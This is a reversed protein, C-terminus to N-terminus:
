NGILLDLGNSSTRGFGNITPDAPFAQMYIHVGLLATNAVIPLSATYNGSADASGDRVIDPRVRLSCGPAQFVALNFPLFNGNWSTNSQGQVLWVNGNAPMNSGTITCGIGIRPDTATIVPVGNTGACGVGFTTVQPEDIDTTWMGRGHTGVLLTNSGHLFSLDYCAVDAPGDNSGSWTQCNDSTGFVGVETAVYYRGNLTPHQAIGRLPSSPLATAGVGTVDTFTLGANTTRFLNNTVFGGCAVLVTSSNNRDILIRTIVSGPVQNSADVETWTPTVALANSTRFLRGNNHGVWVTNSSNPSVAIASIPSNIPSGIPPKIASWIPGPVFTAKANSCRWLSAIGAYLVNPNIPSSVLPAIFNGLTGNETINTTMTVSSVGGDTSRFIGSFQTAGWQFNPDTPDIQSNAGDGGRTILAARAPINITHSGNDQTGGVLRGSSHGAVGYYQVSRFDNDRRSWGSTTSATRYDGTRYVGGDSCVFVERNVLSNFFPTEAFCHIDPHVQETDIYGNSVQTFTQGGNTSRWTHVSGFLLYNSNTPDVWIANAYWWISGGNIPTTTRQSFTAGNDNSRWCEGGNVSAYIRGSVSPAYALEIRTGTAYGGGSTTWSLGQNSSYAIRHGASQYHCICRNSNNPDFLVRNSAGARVLSWTNGGDTSRRVGDETSVLILDTNTPSIAIHAASEWTSTSPLQAWSAGGDSSMWIGEGRIRDAAIAEGTGAYIVSPNGPRFALSAVSLNGMFDDIPEWSLGANSTRWVGGGVTGAFMISPNTPHIIMSRTRGGINDPGHEVWSLNGIGGGDISEAFAVNAKREARAKLMGSPDMAGNEDLMALRRWLLAQHPGGTEEDSQLAADGIKHPTGSSMSFHTECGALLGALIILTFSKM